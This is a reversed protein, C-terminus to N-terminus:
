MERLLKVANHYDRVAEAMWISASYVFVDEVGKRIKM